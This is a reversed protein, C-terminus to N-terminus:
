TSAAMLKGTLASKNFGRRLFFFEWTKGKRELQGEKGRTGNWKGKREEPEMGNARGKRQNWEMQGEKGRTGNVGSSSPQWHPRSADRGKRQNWEM